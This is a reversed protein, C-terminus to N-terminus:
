RFVTTGRALACFGPCAKEWFDMEGKPAPLKCEGGGHAVLDKGAFIARLIEVLDDALGV